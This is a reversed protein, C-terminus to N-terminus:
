VVAVCQSKSLQEVGDRDYTLPHSTITLLPVANGGVSECLTQSRYYINSSDYMAELQYLHYQTCLVDFAWLGVRLLDIITDSIVFASCVYM